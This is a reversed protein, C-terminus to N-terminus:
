FYNIIFNIDTGRLRVAPAAEPDQRPARRARGGAGPEHREWTTRRSGGPGESGGSPAARRLAASPVPFTRAGRLWAAGSLPCGCEPASRSRPPPAAATGRRPPRRGRCPGPLGRGAPPPVRRAQPAPPPPPAFRTHTHQNHVSGKFFPQDAVGRYRSKGGYLLLNTNFALTLAPVSYPLAIAHEAHTLYGRPASVGLPTLFPKPPKDKFM